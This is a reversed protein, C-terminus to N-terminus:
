VRFEFRFGGVEVRFGLVQFGEMRARLFGSGSGQFFFLHSTTAYSVIGSRKAITGSSLCACVGGVWDAGRECVRVCAECVRVCAECVRVCAECM